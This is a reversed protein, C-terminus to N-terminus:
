KNRNREIQEELIDWLQERLRHIKSRLGSLSLGQEQALAERHASRQAAPREKYYEVLLTRDAEDLEQLCNGMLRFFEEQGEDLIRGFAAGFGQEALVERMQRRLREQSIHVAFGYCYNVISPVAAKDEPLHLAVRDLVEEAASRCARHGHLAFFRTFREV